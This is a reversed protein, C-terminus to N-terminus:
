EAWLAVAAAGTAAQLLRERFVADRLRRAIETLTRVHALKEHRPVLLMVVVRAPKADMSDFEIGAPFLALAAVMKDLNELAAHPVAVGDEMGTSVSRERAILAAKAESVRNADLLGAKAVADVMQELLAWKDDVEPSLLITDAHLQDALAM